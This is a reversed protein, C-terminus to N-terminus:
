KNYYLKELRHWFLLGNLSMALYLAFYIVSFAIGLEKDLSLINSIYLFTIERIGIGGISIPLISLINSILFVTIYPFLLIHNFVDIKLSALLITVTFIQMLQNITSFIVARFSTSIKEKFLMKTFFRYCIITILVGLIILIKGYPILNVLNSFYAFIFACIMLILLGNSREAILAKLVNMKPVKALKHLIYVKYGDGSIGGPLITNYLSGTLYLGISFQNNMKVGAEACYIKSRFSGITQALTLIIFCLILNPTPILALYKAIQKTDAHTIVSYFAFGIIFLKLILLFHRKHKKIFNHTKRIAM